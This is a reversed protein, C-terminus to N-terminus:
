NKAKAVFQLVHGGLTPAKQNMYSNPLVTRLGNTLNQTQLMALLLSYSRLAIHLAGGSVFLTIFPVDTTPIRHNMPAAIHPGYFNFKLSRGTINSSM